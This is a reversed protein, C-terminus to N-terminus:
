LLKTLAEVGQDQQHGLLETLLPVGSNEVGSKQGDLNDKVRNNLIKLEARKGM